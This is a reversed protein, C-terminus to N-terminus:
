EFGDTLIGYKMNWVAQYRALQKIGAEINKYREVEIPIQIDESIRIVFDARNRDKSAEAIYDSDYKKTYLSGEKLGFVTSSEIVKRVFSQCGSGIEQISYNEKDSEWLLLLEANSM